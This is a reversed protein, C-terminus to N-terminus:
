KKLKKATSTKDEMVRASLIIIDEKPLKAFQASKYRVAARKIKNVTEQGSVVKGFVTYGWGKPTKSSHNLFANDEVNIFFQATASHPDNTRAMAITYKNNALGNNAENKIPADTAKKVLDKTFGGGQIMFGNMVRHFITDDYFKKNVYNLFNQTTLKAKENDLELEIKGKNTEILVKITKAAYLHSSFFLIVSAILFNKM